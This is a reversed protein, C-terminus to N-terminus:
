AISACEAAEWLTACSSAPPHLCSFPPPPPTSVVISQKLRSGLVPPSPCMGLCVVITVAVSSGIPESATDQLLSRSSFATELCSANPCRHCTM